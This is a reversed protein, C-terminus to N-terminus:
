WSSFRKASFFERGKAEALVQAHDTPSIVLGEGESNAPSNLHNIRLLVDL